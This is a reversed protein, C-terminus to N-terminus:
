ASDKDKDHQEGYSHRLEAWTKLRAYVRGNVSDAPYAGQEDRKGAAVGTLLAIGQDITKVPYFFFRGEAAADMVDKRLMLHPVNAAPILVGQRGSLGRELCVDFFGEIKDNVGGIDQVQGRQNVSGTVAFSQNLPVDALASM